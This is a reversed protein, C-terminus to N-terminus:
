VFILKARVCDVVYFATLLMPTSCLLLVFVLLSINLENMERNSGKIM